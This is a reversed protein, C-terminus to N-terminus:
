HRQWWQRCEPLPLPRSLLALPSNPSWRLVKIDDWFHSMDHGAQSLQELVPELLRCSTHTIKELDLNTPLLPFAMIPLLYRKHGTAFDTDDESATVFKDSLKNLSYNTLHCYM